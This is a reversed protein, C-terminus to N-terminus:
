LSSRRESSIVRSIASVQLPLEYPPAGVLLSFQRFPQEANQFAGSPCVRNGVVGVKRIDTLDEWLSAFIAEVRRVANQSLQKEAADAVILTSEVWGPFYSQKM